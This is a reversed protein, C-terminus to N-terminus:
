VADFETLNNKEKNAKLNMGTPYATAIFIIHRATATTTGFVYTNGGDKVKLRRALQPASMPFNRVAVNAHTIGQMAMRLERKNLKAVAQVAFSRGPFGAVVHDSVMLHSDRSVVCLGLRQALLDHCGAKMISANAEHLWLTGESMQEDWVPADCLEQGLTYDFRQDDNVCHVAVEGYYARRIILLLEKCEGRVSVIHVQEVCPLQRLAQRIDLMPSLKIIVQRGKNLLVPALTAVDPTCDALAYVRKGSQDRRAPDIYITDVQSMQRLFEVADACVVTADPLGLLPLNHRAIDCLQEQQEVYTARNLGRAMFAFDVGLGGTLDCLSDGRVLAAKYFATVQSSCQEMSLHPPYLLGQTAAWLPLKDRAAQRGAIQQLAMPMDVEPWRSAQLALQQVDGDTHSDIFDSTTADIVM